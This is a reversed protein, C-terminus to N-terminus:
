FSSPYCSRTPEIVQFDRHLKTVVLLHVNGFTFRIQFALVSLFNVIVHMQTIIICIQMILLIPNAVM